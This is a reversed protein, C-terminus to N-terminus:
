HKILMERDLLERLSTNSVRSKRSTNSDLPQSRAMCLHQVEFTLRSGAGAEHCVATKGAKNAGKIKAYVSNLNLHSGLGDHPLRSTHCIPHKGLTHTSMHLGRFQGGYV